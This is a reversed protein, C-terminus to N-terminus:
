IYRICGAEVLVQLSQKVQALTNGPQLEFTRFSGEPLYNSIKKFDVEGLGPAYHDAVGIVDHLHTGFIRSSYRKLWENHPFFGLRDLAQAHGVDYIFGLRGPDALCLLEEMEDIIPIDMYHYRNELGLKVNFQFAYEILDSISKKVAQLRPSARHNRSQVFQSKIYQYEETHTKGASFLLRLKTEHSIDTSVNGCHIVVTSAGLEHALGISKKVAAVGHKRNVEDQSSILWDREVLVKTTIDAPCPEHISSFQYHDLHVRSLMDSNIQYNLEIKQFGLQRSITFFDNLDPYNNIAWMTSLSANTPQNVVDM